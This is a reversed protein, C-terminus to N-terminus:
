GCQKLVEVVTSRHKLTIISLTEAIDLQEQSFTHASPTPEAPTALTSTQQTSAPQLPTFPVPNLSMPTSLVDHEYETISKASSVPKTQLNKIYSDTKVHDQTINGTPPTPPVVTANPPAPPTSTAFTITTQRKKWGNSDEGLGLTRKRTM